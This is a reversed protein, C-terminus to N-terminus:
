NISISPTLFEKDLLYVNELQPIYKTPYETAFTRLWFVENIIDKWGTSSNNIPIPGSETKNLTSPWREPDGGYYIYADYLNKPWWNGWYTLMSENSTTDNIEDEDDKNHVFQFIPVESNGLGNNSFITFTGDNGPIDRENLERVVYPKPPYYVSWSKVFRKYGYGYWHYRSYRWYYVYRSYYYSYYYYQKWGEWRGSWWGRRYYVRSYHLTKPETYKTVYVYYYEKRDKVRNIQETNTILIKTDIKYENSNPSTESIWYIKTDKGFRQNQDPNDKAQTIITWDNWDDFRTNDSNTIVIGKANPLPPLEPPDLTIDFTVNEDGSGTYFGELSYNITGNWIRNSYWIQNVWSGSHGDLIQLHNNSNSVNGQKNSPVSASDIAVTAGSIDINFTISEGSDFTIDPIDLLGTYQQTLQGNITTDKTLQVNEFTGLLIWDSSSSAPSLVSNVTYTGKYYRVDINVVNSTNNLARGQSLSNITITKNSTNVITFLNGFDSVRNSNTLQTNTNLSYNIMRYDYNVKYSWVASWKGPILRPDNDISKIYIYNKEPLYLTSYEEENLPTNSHIITKSIDYDNFSVDKTSYNDDLQHIDNINKPKLVYIIYDIYLPVGTNYMNITLNRFLEQIQNEPIKIKITKNIDEYQPKLLRLFLTQNLLGKWGGNITNTLIDNKYNGFNSLDLNKELESPWNQSLGGNFTYVDYFNNPYWISHWSNNLITESTNNDNGKLEFIKYDTNTNDKRGYLIIYGNTTGENDAVEIKTIKIESILAQDTFMYIITQQNGSYDKWFEYNSQWGVINDFRGDNTLIPVAVQNLKTIELKGPIYTNQYSTYDFYAANSLLHNYDYLYQNIKTRDYPEKNSYTYRVFSYNYRFYYKFPQLYSSLIEQSYNNPIKEYEKYYTLWGINNSKENTFILKTNSADITTIDYPVITTLNYSSHNETYTNLSRYQFRGDELDITSYELKNESGMFEYTPNYLSASGFNDVISMSIDGWYFNYSGDIEGKGTIIFESKKSNDGEYIISNKTKINQTSYTYLNGANISLADENPASIFLYNNTLKVSHGFLGGMTDEGSTLKTISNIFTETQNNTTIDTKKFLYVSGSNFSTLDDWFGNERRCGAVILNNYIDVSYGFENYNSNTNGTIKQVYSLTNDSELRYLFAAGDNIFESDYQPAGVILYNNNMSISKGFINNNNTNTYDLEPTTLKAFPTTESNTLADNYLYVGGSLNSDDNIIGISLVQDKLNLTMGNIGLQKLYSKPYLHTQDREVDEYSRDSIQYTDDYIDAYDNKTNNHTMPILNEKVIIDHSHTINDSGLNYVHAYADHRDSKKIELMEINISTDSTIDSPKTSGLEIILKFRDANNHFAMVGSIDTSSSYGSIIENVFETKDDSCYIPSKYTVYRQGLSTNGNFSEIKLIVWVAGTFGEQIQSTFRCNIEVTSNQTINFNSTLDYTYTNSSGQIGNISNSSSQTYSQYNSAYKISSIVAYSNDIVINSGFYHHSSPDNPSTLNFSYDWVGNQHKFASVNNDKANYVLVWNTNLATEKGFESYKEVYNSNNSSNYNKGLNFSNILNPNFIPFFSNIDNASLDFIYANGTAERTTIMSNSIDIGLGSVCIYREDPSISVKYSYRDNTTENDNNDLKILNGNNDKNITRDVNIFDINYIEKFTPVVALPFREPINKILYKGKTFLYSKSEDYIISNLIYKPNQSNEGLINIEIDNKSLYKNGVDITFAYVFSAQNTVNNIDSNTGILIKNKYINIDYLNQGTSQEINTYIPQTYPLISNLNIQKILEWKYSKTYVFFVDNLIFVNSNNSIDQCAGVVAFIYVDDNYISCSSGFYSNSIDTQPAELTIEKKWNFKKNNLYGYIKNRNPIENEPHEETVDLVTDFVTPTDTEGDEINFTTKYISNSLDLIVCNSIDTNSSFFGNNSLDEYSYFRIQNLEDNSLIKDWNRYQLLKANTLTNRRNSNFYFAGNETFRYQTENSSLDTEISSYKTHKTGNLYFNFNKFPFTKNGDEDTGTRSTDLEITMAFNYITNAKVPQLFRSRFTNDGYAVWSLFGIYDNTNDNDNDDFKISNLLEGGSSTDTINYYHVNKDIYSYGKMPDVTYHTLVLKWGYDDTYNAAIIEEGCGTANVGKLSTPTKFIFEMTKHKGWSTFTKETGDSNNSYKFNGSSDIEYIDHITNLSKLLEGDTIQSGTIFEKNTVPNINNSYKNYIIACGNEKGPNGFIIYNKTISSSTAFFSNEISYGSNFFTNQFWKDQNNRNFLYSIGSNSIDTYSTAVNSSFILDNLYFETKNKGFFCGSVDALSYNSSSDIVGFKDVKGIGSVIFSNSENYSIDFAYVYTNGANDTDGGFTTENPATAIIQIGYGTNTQDIVQGTTDYEIDAKIDVSWGLQSNNIHGMFYNSPFNGNLSIDPISDEAPIPITSNSPDFVLNGSDDTEQTFNILDNDSLDNYQIFNENKIINTTNGYIDNAYDIGKKFIYVRGRNNQCGPSGVVLWSQTQTTVDVNNSNEGIEVGWISVSHGFYANGSGDENKDPSTLKGIEKWSNINNEVDYSNKFIYVCGRNNDHNPAGIAVYNGYMKISKGFGESNGHSTLKNIDTGDISIRNYNLERIENGTNNFNKKYEFSYINDSTSFTTYGSDSVNYANQRSDYIESYTTPSINLGEQTKIKINDNFFTEKSISNVKYLKNEPHNIRNADNIEYKNGCIDEITHIDPNEADAKVEFKYLNIFVRLIENNSHLHVYTTDDAGFYYKKIKESSFRTIYNFSIDRIDNVPVTITLKHDKWIYSPPSPNIIRVNSIDIYTYENNIELDNTGLFKNNKPETYINRVSFYIRFDDGPLGNTQRIYVGPTYYPHTGELDYTETHTFNNVTRTFQLTGANKFKYTWFFYYKTYKPNYITLKNIDGDSDTKKYITVYNDSTDAINDYVGNNPIDYTYQKLGNITSNSPDVNTNYNLVNFSKRIFPVAIEESINLLTPFGYSENEDEFLITNYSKKFWPGNLYNWEYFFIELHINNSTTYTSNTGSPVRSNSKVRNVNNPLEQIQQKLNNIINEDITVIIKDLFGLYQIDSHPIISTYLDVQRNTNTMTNQPKIITVSKLGDSSVSNTTINANILNNSDYTYFISTGMATFIEVDTNSIDIAPIFSFGFINDNSDLVKKSDELNINNNSFDSVGTHNSIVGQLVLFQVSNYSADAPTLNYNFIQNEILNLSVNDAM